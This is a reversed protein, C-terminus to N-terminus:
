RRLTSNFEVSLNKKFKLMMNKFELIEIQKKRISYKELIKKEIMVLINKKTDKLM